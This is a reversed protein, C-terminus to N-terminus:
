VGCVMPIAAGENLGREHRPQRTDLHGAVPAPVGPCVHTGLYPQYSDRSARDLNCAGTAPGTRGKDPFM